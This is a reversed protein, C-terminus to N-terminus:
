LMPFYKWTSYECVYPFNEHVLGLPDLKLCPYDHWHGSDTYKLLVCDEDILHINTIGTITDLIFRKKGIHPSTIVGPQGPAWYTFTASEGTLEVDIM